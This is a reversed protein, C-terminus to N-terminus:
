ENHDGTEKGNGLYSKLKIYYLEKLKAADEHEPELKLVENMAQVAEGFEHLEAYALGLMFYGEISLPDLKVAKKLFSIALHLQEVNTFCKEAEFLLIKSQLNKLNQEYEEHNPKLLCAKKAHEWAKIIKHSRACTISLRFHYEPQDPECAIAKEFWEIAQEFDSSLIAKYAEQIMESSDM